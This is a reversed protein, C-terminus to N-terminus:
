TVTVLVPAARWSEVTVGSWDIDFEALLDSLVEQRRRRTEPQQVSNKIEERVPSQGTTFILHCGGEPKIDSLDRAHAIATLTASKQLSEASLPNAVHIEYGCVVKDILRRNRKKPDMEEDWLAAPVSQTIADARFLHSIDKGDHEIKIEYLCDWEGRKKNMPAVGLAPLPCMRGLFAGATETVPVASNVVISLERPNIVGLHTPANANPKNAAPQSGHPAAKGAQAAITCIAEDKPLFATQFDSWKKIPEPLTEYRDGFAVDFSIVFWKVHAIGSFPPGWVTLDAALEVSVTRWGFFQFTYSAGISVGIHGRYHFPRWGILFDVGAMFWAKLRGSQWVIALNGGAMLASPTLAFYADATVKLNTDVQWNLALRPVRPYHAPPDFFKGYGGLTLAFDGKNKEGFWCYFAFGGTLHCDKSFVYADPLLKAMVKLEGEDPAFRALLALSASVLPKAENPPSSITAKGLVDIEFHQGFLATLLVFGNINKFSTFRVGATLFYEGAAPPIAKGLEEVVAMPTKPAAATAMAHKVLPFEGVQDITPMKITRNYGFGLAMGEVYFFPPGGIPYDVLAYIFLSPHGDEGARYSGFAQIGLKKYHLTLAGDYQGEGVRLLAGGIELDGRTFDIGLGDLHFTPKFKKNVLEALACEAALGELTITLGAMELSADLLFDINQGALGVGVRQFHFPGFAKQVDVWKVIRSSATSVIDPPTAKSLPERQQEKDAWEKVNTKLPLDLQRSIEGLRMTAKMQVYGQATDIENETLKTVGAATMRNIERVEEVAFKDTVALLQFVVSLTQSRDFASGVLPLQSLEIGADLEIGFLFKSKETPAEEGQKKESWKGFALQAHKLSITLGAPIVEAVKESVQSVLKKIDVTDGKPSDYAAVLLSTGGHSGYGVAFERDYLHLVGGFNLAHKHDASTAGPEKTLDLHVVLSANGAKTADGDIPFSVLARFSFDSTLTNFVVELDRLTLLKVMEPVPGAGGIAQVFKEIGIGVPIPNGQSAGGRFTWGKAVGEYAAAVYLMCGCVDFVSRMEVEALAEGEGRIRFHLYSLHVPFGSPSELTWQDSLAIEASYSKTGPEVLFNFNDVQVNPLYPNDYGLYRKFVEAVRLPGRKLTGGFAVKNSSTEHDFYASLELAAHETIGLLGSVTVGVHAQSDFPNDVRFNLDIADLTLFGPILNWRINEGTEVHCTVYGIQGAALDVLVGVDTLRLLDTSNVIGNPASLPLKVFAGVDELLGKIGDAPSATILLADSGENYTVSFPVQHGENLAKFEFAGEVVLFSKYAWCLQALDLYPRCYLKYALRSFAIPFASRNFLQLDVHSSSLEVAPLRAPGHEDDDQFRQALLRNVPLMEISGALYQEEVPLFSRIASLFAPTFWGEFRMGRKVAESEDYSRLVLRVAPDGNGVSPTMNSLWTGQLSSFSKHWKWSEECRGEISVAAAKAVSQGDPRLSFVLTVPMELFPAAAGRGQITIVERQADRDNQEINLVVLKGSPFYTELFERVGADQFNQIDLDLRGDKVRLADELAIFDM